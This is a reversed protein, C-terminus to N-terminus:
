LSLPVTQQLLVCLKQVWQQKQKQKTRTKNQKNQNAKTKNQNAETECNGFCYVFWCQELLVKM